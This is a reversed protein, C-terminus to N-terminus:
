TIAVVLTITPEIEIVQAAAVPVRTIVSGVTYDASIDTWCVGPQFLANVAAPVHATIEGTATEELGCGTQTFTHEDLHVVLPAYSTVGRRIDMQYNSLGTAPDGNPLRVKVIWAWDYNQRLVLPIMDSM